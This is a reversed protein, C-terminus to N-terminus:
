RGLEGSRGACGAPGIALCRRRATLSQRRIPVRSTSFRAQRPTPIQRCALSAPCCRRSQLNVGAAARDALRGPRRALRHVIVTAGGARQRDCHWITFASQVEAIASEVQKLVSLATNIFSSPGPEEGAGVFTLEFNAIQGADKDESVEFDICRVRLPGLYPHVLTGVQDSDECASILADRTAEWLPGIVRDRLRYQRIRRGLDESFPEDRTPFGHIAVCRRWAACLQRFPLRHRALDRAARHFRVCAVHARTLRGAGECMM